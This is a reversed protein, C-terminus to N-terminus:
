LSREAALSAVQGQLSLLEVKRLSLSLALSKEVSVIGGGILVFIGVGLIVSIGIILGGVSLIIGRVLVVGIIRVCLIVSCLVIRCVGVIRRVSIISSGRIGGLVMAGSGVLRIGGVGGVGGVGSRHSSSSVLRRTVRRLM